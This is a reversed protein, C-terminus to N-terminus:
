PTQFFRYFFNKLIKDQKKDKVNKPTPPLKRINDGSVVGEGGGVNILFKSNKYKLIQNKEINSFKSISRNEHERKKFNM